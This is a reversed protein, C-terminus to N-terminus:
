PQAQPWTVRGARLTRIRYLTGGGTIYLWKLDPGGFACNTVEDTPVHLFDVMKGEPDFVYIGGPQSADPEFPPKSQSTGGAVYLNGAVDQKLGDPGRSEKWDHILTQSGAAVTGNPQLEFRWLKRAGGLVDNCNDAVFLFRDDASVLVGNARQVERGIVRHVSGDRDIRYVGEITNGSDDRQQMDDKTGYRPDSFYLRGKSDLTLDNPTNYPKGQFADTLVAVTGDRTTRTVRRLKPECALLTGDRDFLLGNTGAGERHISPSGDLAWRQIHGNGSSLIGWAPDWAPGEGGRGQGTVVELAANPEFISPERQTQAERLIREEVSDGWPSPLGYYVMAGGGEYGGERLVRQSPIYAMVDHAYGAVWTPRKAQNKIRLSYDVVVEGGLAVWDVSNGLRWTAIPYPYTASLPKGQAHQQLLYKARLAEYNPTKPPPTEKSSSAATKQLQELTPLSQFPLDIERYTCRLQPDIDTTAITQVVQEVSVALQRGYHSALTVTRRPIPNQDAGCGAFFMATCGPFRAELEMQAYGPYDGNWQYDSLVTAHCAYGFVLTKLNGKQDRILLVPVDHDVPGAL